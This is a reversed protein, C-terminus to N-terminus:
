RKAERDEIDFVRDLWRRVVDSISARTRESEARARNLQRETLSVTIPIKPEFAIKM